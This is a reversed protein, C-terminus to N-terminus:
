LNNETTKCGLRMEGGGVGGLEVGALKEGFGRM